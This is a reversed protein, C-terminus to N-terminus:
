WVRLNKAMNKAFFNCKQAILQAVSRCGFVIGWGEALVLFFPENPIQLSIFYRWNSSNRNGFTFTCRQHKFQCYNSKVIKKWYINPHLAM